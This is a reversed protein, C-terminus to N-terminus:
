SRKLQEKMTGASIRCLSGGAAQSAPLSGVRARPNVSRKPLPVVVGFPGVWVGMYTLYQALTDGDAPMDGGPDYDNVTSYKM